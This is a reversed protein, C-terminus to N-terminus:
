WLGLEEGDRPDIAHAQTVDTLETEAARREDEARNIRSQLQNKRACDSQRAGCDLGEHELDESSTRKAEVSHRYREAAALYRADRKVGPVRSREEPLRTAQEIQLQHVEAKRAAYCQDMKAFHASLDPSQCMQTMSRKSMTFADIQGYGGPQRIQATPDRPRCYADEMKAIFGTCMPSGGMALPPAAQAGWMPQAPPAQAFCATLCAIALSARLSIMSEGKGTGSTRVGKVTAGKKSGAAAELDLLDLTRARDVGVRGLMTNLNILTSTTSARGRDADRLLCLGASSPIM